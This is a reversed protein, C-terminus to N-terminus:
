QSALYQDTLAKLNRYGKDADAARNRDAAKRLLAVAVGFSYAMEPENRTVEDVTASWLADIRQMSGQRDGRDVILKGLGSAEQVLRPLLESPTGSPLTTSPAISTEAAITQDYTTGSCGTFTLSGVTALLGVVAATVHTTM